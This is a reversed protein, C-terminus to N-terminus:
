SVLLIRKFMSSPEAGHLHFNKFSFITIKRKEEYQAITEMCITYPIWVVKHQSTGILM